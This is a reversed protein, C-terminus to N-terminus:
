PPTRTGCPRARCARAPRRASPTAAEASRGSSPAVAVAGPLAPARGLHRSGVARVYRRYRRPHPPRRSLPRLLRSTAATASSTCSTAFTTPTALGLAHGIEHVCTLYVITERLLPDNPAAAAIDPGLANTDPRIYVAAGRRGGVRMSRMEGYQGGGAPVWHIQVLADARRRRSSACGDPARASGPRSRGRPSNAIAPRTLPVANAGEIFYTVRGSADLPGLTPITQASAASSAALVALSRPRGGAVHGYSIGDHACEQGSRRAGRRPARAARASVRRCHRREVLRDRTRPRRSARRPRWARTACRRARLGREVVDQRPELGSTTRRGFARPADLQRRGHASIAEVVDGLDGGVVRGRARHGSRTMAARRRRGRPAPAPPRDAARGSVFRM